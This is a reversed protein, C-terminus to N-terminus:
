SHCSTSAPILPRNRPRRSLLPRPITTANPNSVATKPGREEPIKNPPPQSKTTPIPSSISLVSAPEPSPQHSPPSGLGAANIKSTTTRPLPKSRLQHHARDGVRRRNGTVCIDVCYISVQSVRAQFQSHHIQVSREVSSFCSPNPSFLYPYSRPHPPPTPHHLYYVPTTTSTYVQQSARM